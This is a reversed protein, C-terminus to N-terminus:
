FELKRYCYYMLIKTKVPTFKKLFKQEVAPTDMNDTYVLIPKNKAYGSKICAKSLEVFLPIFPEQNKIHRFVAFDMIVRLEEEKPTCAACLIEDEYVLILHKTPLIQETIYTKIKDLTDLQKTLSGDQKILNTLDDIDEESGLRSSFKSDYKGTAVESVSLLLEKWTNKINFGQKLLYKINAEPQVMPNVRIQFHTFKVQDRFYQIISQFLTDRVEAPTHPVTWPFSLVIEKVQEQVRAHIYGVMKKGRFAYRVYESQMKYKSFLKRIQDGDAPQFKYENADNFVEAQQDELGQDPEWLKYEFETM